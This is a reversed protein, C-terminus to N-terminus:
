NEFSFAVRTVSLLILKLLGLASYLYRCQFGFVRLFMQHHFVQACRQTYVPFALLLLQADEYFVRRKLFGKEGSLMIQNTRM